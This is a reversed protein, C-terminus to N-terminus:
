IRSGRQSVRGNMSAVDNEWGAANLWSSPHPIYQGGDKKWDATNAQARVAAILEAAPPLTRKAKGWAKWAAAKNIRKPYAQWFQDFDPAYVIGRKPTHPNSTTTRATSTSTSTSTTANAMRKGDWKSAAGKAGAMARAASISDRKAIEQDARKNHRMGDGNVPFFKDAVSAVAKKEHEDFARCIRMLVDADDPMPGTAYYHDLLVNYAGHEALSLHATDRSYDGYYRPYWNM